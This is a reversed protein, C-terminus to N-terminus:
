PKSISINNKCTGCLLGFLKLNFFFVVFLFCGLFCENFYLSRDTVRYVSFLALILIFLFLLPEYVSGALGVAEKWGAKTETM